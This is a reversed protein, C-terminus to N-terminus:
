FCSIKEKILNGIFVVGVRVGLVLKQSEIIELLGVCGM